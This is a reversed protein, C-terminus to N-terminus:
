GRPLHFVQVARQLTVASSNLGAASAASEEVLAANQQTVTDLHNVAENVQTIGVAQEKTATSIQQVLEGVAKVSVVVEDITAGAAKMQATGRTVQQVSKSILGRIEKAASGSRQALARVESAVVAFGRGQEGARAAEVAANLALINTQFAISEIVGIIDGVKASSDQIADMAMGVQHVAASGRAAVETSQASQQSVQAATDATTRVTSSLEEMSAATQELSSAQSETRSSLDMGGAAVEAATQNFGSIESRVDGVVARLNVQIQRLRQMLGGVPQVFDVPVTGALNCAALDGALRSAEHMARSFQGHFWGLVVGGGVLLVLLQAAALVMGTLGLAVPVMTLVAVLCLALVLWQTLSMRSLRGVWGAVGHPIVEGAQLHLSAKGSERERRMKQYLAEAANVQADSPKVRVSMYGRPKGNAMIPTVNAQVWYHDGNKRRNKVLGTWPQGHGITSWMDKFAEAPMDPHRILNHPQGILEDYTYGSVEVFASNCHTIHGRTDTTSVLMQDAPFDYFQGTVPLNTRM